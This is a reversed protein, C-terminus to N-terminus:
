NIVLLKFSLHYFLGNQGEKEESFSHLSLANKQWLFALSFYKQSVNHSIM